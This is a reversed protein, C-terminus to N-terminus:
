VTFGYEDALMGITESDLRQNISVMLGMAFCKQIIETPDVDLKEALDAVTSFEPLKIVGTEEEVAVTEDKERKRRRSKRTVDLKALTRKVSEKVAKHDTEPKKVPKKARKGKAKRPPRGGGSKAPKRDKKKVERTTAAKVRKFHAEIFTEVKEDVSSMHSKVTIGEKVLIKRLADSSVEYKRALQYVRVKAM